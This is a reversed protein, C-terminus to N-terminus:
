SGPENLSQPAPQAVHAGTRDIEFLALGRRVRGDPELVFLGNSGAFGDPRVLSEVSFGNPGFVAVVASTADFALSPLDRPPAHYRATFAQDFASRATPDPAAFWAGAIAGLRPAERTWLATGLLRLHAPGSQLAGLAPLARQLPEGSAGLLLADIKPPTAAAAPDATVPLAEATAFQALSDTLGSSGSRQRVIDPQSLGADVTANMLGAALADGFPNAPLIAGIRSRNEGRLALVLRRVQQAPTIGLAWVGPQAVSSDSTFALVPVGAARAIPAVAVTEPGTLPGVIVGAGAAIAARAARAAGEASGGTDQSDLPPSGAQAVALQAGQLMGRGVEADRGSLPLLVAIRRGKPAPLQALAQPSLASRGYGGPPPQAVCACLGVLAGLLPLARSLGNALLGM